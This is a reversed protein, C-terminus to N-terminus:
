AHGSFSRYLMDQSRVGVLTIEALDGLGQAFEAPLPVLGFRACLDLFPETAFTSFCGVPLFLLVLPPKGCVRDVAGDRNRDARGYRSEGVLNMVERRLHGANRRASHCEASPDNGYPTFASLRLVIGIMSGLVSSGVLSMSPWAMRPSICSRDVSIWDTPSWRYRCASPRQRM